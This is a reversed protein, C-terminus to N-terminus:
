ITEMEGSKMWKLRKGKNDRFKLPGNATSLWWPIPSPELLHRIGLYSSTLRPNIEIVFDNNGKPCDGLIVDIGVWGQIGDIGRLAVRALNECRSQMEQPLPGWGGEYSIKGNRNAITQACAPMFIQTGDFRLLCSISASFGHVFSQFILKGQEDENIGTLKRKADYIDRVIMTRECGAGDKPKIVLPGDSEVEDIQSWTNPTPVRNMFWYKYLNLKDGCLSVASSSCGLNLVSTKEIERVMQVLIGNCEPAILFACDCKKALMNIVSCIDSGVIPEHIEILPSIEFINERALTVVQHGCGILDEALAVLMARGESLYVTQCDGDETQQSCAWEILLVKM